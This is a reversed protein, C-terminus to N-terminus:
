LSPRYQQQKHFGPNNTPPRFINCTATVNHGTAGVCLGNSFTGGLLVPNRKGAGAFGVSFHYIFWPVLPILLVVGIFRLATMLVILQCPPLDALRKLFLLAQFHPGPGHLSTAWDWALAFASLAKANAHSQAVEYWPGPGCKWANSNRFRSASRRRTRGIDQHGGQTEYTNHKQNGEDGPEDVMERDSKGPAPPFSHLTRPPVSEFPNHTPAVPCSTAVVQLMKRGGFLFIGFEMLSSPVMGRRYAAKVSPEEERIAAVRSKGQAQPWPLNRPKEGVATDDTRGILDDAKLLRAVHLIPQKTFQCRDVGDVWRSGCVIWFAVCVMIIASLIFSDSVEYVARAIVMGIISGLPLSTTTSVATGSAAAFGVM